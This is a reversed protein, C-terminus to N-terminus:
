RCSARRWAVKRLRVKAGTSSCWQWAFAFGNGVEGRAESGLLGDEFGEAGAPADAELPGVDGDLVVCRALGGNPEATCGLAKSLVQPCVLDVERQRVGSWVGAGLDHELPQGRLRGVEVCGLGSRGRPNAARRRLRCESSLDRPAPETRFNRFIWNM